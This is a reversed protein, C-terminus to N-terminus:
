EESAKLTQIRKHDVGMVHIQIELRDAKKVPDVVAQVM